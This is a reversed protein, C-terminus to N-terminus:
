RRIGIRAIVGETMQDAWIHAEGPYSTLTGSAPWFSGHNAGPDTSTVERRVVRWEHPVCDCASPSRSSAVQGAAAGLVALIVLVWRPPTKKM